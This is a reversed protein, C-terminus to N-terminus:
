RDENLLRASVANWVARAVEDESAAADIVVCRDPEDAAIDLYGQRLKEHFAAARREYPDPDTRSQATQIDANRRNGVRAFADAVPLDLILTLDPRTGAVVVGEIATLVAMPVAGAAGQYARTSDAFRDCIVWQGAALAPRILGELHDARAASFLLAEALATHPPTAPDLIVQRVREAFPTGGPERTIKASMGRAQLRTALRAAQTSKGTGEGGEITIFRAQKTPTTM